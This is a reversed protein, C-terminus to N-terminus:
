QKIVEIITAKSTVKKKVYYRACVFCCLMLGIGVPLGVHEPQFVVIGFILGLAPLLYTMVMSGILGKAEIALRVRDGSAAGVPDDAELRM